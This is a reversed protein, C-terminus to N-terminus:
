WGFQECHLEVSPGNVRICDATINRVTDVLATPGCAAILIRKDKDVSMIAQRVLAEINPRGYIIPLSLTEPVSPIEKIREVRKAIDAGELDKERLAISSTQTSLAPSEGGKELISASASAVETSTQAPSHPIPGSATVSTEVRTLHLKLAIKPACEHTILHDLHQTFWAINDHDRTAWIFDIQKKSDPDLRQIMNVALGITFTAGSGGAVLVVKDYEIPDPFTGYPGEVSARISAGPNDSAYKHLDKTFGSYTNIVLEIPETAVITFPHTEFTRIHPLWVYCHKGPRARTMSKKLVIRTGGNPLPYVKAENNIVNYALRALRILRDFAWLSAILVTVILTKDHEFSPRHLGLAVVIVAFLTLHVIYFLEYKLRRLIMGALVTFLMAFGAIIGATVINERLIQAEGAKLFYSTYLSSHLIVYLLTTYGAIRHLSNLREYSYATLIALPTNKLALFVVLALNGAAMWGFRSAVNSAKSYDLRYFSFSANFAVYHAVLIAHGVSTFGSLQRLCAKRIIRSLSVIPYLFTSRSVSWALRRTWHAVIFIAMLAALSIAYYALNEVNIRLRVVMWAQNPSVGGPPGSPPLKSSSPLAM